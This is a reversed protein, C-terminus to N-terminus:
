VRAMLRPYFKSRNHKFIWCLQNIQLWSSSWTRSGSSFLSSSNWWASSNLLWSRSWISSRISSRISSWSSSWSRSWSSWDAAQNLGIKEDSKANNIEVRFIWLSASASISWIIKSDSNFLVESEGSNCEWDTLFGADGSVGIGSVGLGSVGFGSVGTGRENASDNGFYKLSFWWHSIPISFAGLQGFISTMRNIFDLGNLESRLRYMLLWIFFWPAELSPTKKRM